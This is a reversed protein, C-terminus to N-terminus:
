EHNVELPSLLIAICKFTPPAANSTRATEDTTNPAVSYLTDVSSSSVFVRLVADLMESSATTVIASPVYSREVIGFICEDAFNLTSTVIDEAAGEGVLLEMKGMKGFDAYSRGKGLSMIKPIM